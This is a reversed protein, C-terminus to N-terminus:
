YLVTLCWINKRYRHKLVILTVKETPKALEYAAQEATSDRLNVGNFELIRDGCSLGAQPVHLLVLFNIFM